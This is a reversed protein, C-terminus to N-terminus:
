IEIFPKQVSNTEIEKQAVGQSLSLQLHRDFMPSNGLMVLALRFFMDPLSHRRNFYYMLESLNEGLINRASCIIRVVCSPICIALCQTSGGIFSSRTLRAVDTMSWTIAGSELM